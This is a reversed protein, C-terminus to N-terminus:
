RRVGQRLRQWAQRDPAGAALWDGLEDLLYVPRRAGLYTPM